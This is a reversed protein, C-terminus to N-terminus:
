ARAPLDEIAAAILGHRSPPKAGSRFAAVYDGFDWQTDLFRTAAARGSQRLAEAREATLDFETTRVGLTPISITRAYNATEVYMRDHAEMMTLVISKAYDILGKVGTAHHLPELREAVSSQPDPEVLLLGFTPWPPVGPTDFLWIPFNSLVGGDVILHEDGNSARLIVPKFFLPISMSMRVALAIDLEDPDTGFLTADRPLRLMARGTIDSAIVQVRYRYRPDDEHDPHVLDGFRHKGKADLLERMWEVFRDGKYLGEERLISLLPGAGPIRDEWTEDEFQKFDLGELIGRLEGPTYGAALLTAAIAGASTGAVNEFEYGRETLVELAGVLGIGKMGGGELVLDVKKTDTVV